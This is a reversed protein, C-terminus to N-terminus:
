SNGGKNENRGKRFYENFCRWGCFYKPEDLQPGLYMATVVGVRSGIRESQVVLRYDMCNGTSTLDSGCEDCTVKVEKPM